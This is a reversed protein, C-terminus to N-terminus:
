LVTQFLIQEGDHVPDELCKMKWSGVKMLLALQFIVGKNHGSSFNGVFFPISLM